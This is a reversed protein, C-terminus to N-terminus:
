HHIKADFTNNCKARNAYMYISSNGYLYGCAAAELHLTQMCTQPWKAQILPVINNYIYSTYANM